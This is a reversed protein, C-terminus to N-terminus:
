DMMIRVDVRGARLKIDHITAEFQDIRAQQQEIRAEIREMEAITNALKLLEMARSRAAKAAELRGEVSYFETTRDFASFDYSDLEVQKPDQEGLWQLLADLKASPMRYEVMSNSFSMVVAEFKAASTRLTSSFKMQEKVDLRIVGARAIRLDATELPAEAAIGAQVPITEPEARGATNDHPAELDYVQQSECGSILAALVVAFVFARM